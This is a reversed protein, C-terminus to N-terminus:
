CFCENYMSTLQSLMTRTVTSLQYEEPLTKFVLKKKLDIFLVILRM